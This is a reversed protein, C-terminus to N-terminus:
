DGGGATAVAPPLPPEIADEDRLLVVVSGGVEAGEEWQATKITWIKAIFM